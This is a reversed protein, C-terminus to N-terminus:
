DFRVIAPMTKPTPMASAATFKMAQGHLDIILQSNARTGLGNSFRVGGISIPRGKTSLNRMPRGEGLEQMTMAIDLSSLRIQKGGEADAWATRRGGSEAVYGAAAAAGMFKLFARRGSIPKRPKINKM